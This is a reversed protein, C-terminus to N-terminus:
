KAPFLFSFSLKFAYDATTGEDSDGANYWGGGFVNVPQKGIQFVRGMYAGAPIQDWADEKWDYSWLDDPNRIYWGNQGFLSKFKYVIVPQAFTKSINPDDDEGSADWLHYALLGLLVNDGNSFNLNTLGLLGPGLQWVDAGTRDKSATPLVVAGVPAWTFFEGKQSGPSTHTLAVISTIDGVGTVRNDNVEPTTVIPMTTRTIIGQFYGDGLDFPIVPQIIATNAYGSSNDSSPIYLNQLQLQILSGVPNTAKTTLDGHDAKTDGGKAEQAPLSGAIGLVLILVTLVTFFRSKTRMKKERKRTFKIVVKM